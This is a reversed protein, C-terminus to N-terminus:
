GYTAFFSGGVVKGTIGYKLHSILDLFTTSTNFLM